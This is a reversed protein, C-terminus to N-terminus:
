GDSGHLAVEDLWLPGNTDKYVTLRIDAADWTSPPIWERGPVSAGFRQCHVWDDQTPCGGLPTRFTLTGVVSPTNLDFNSFYGCDDPDQNPYDIQRSSIRTSMTGTTDTNGDKYGVATGYSEALDTNRTTQYVYFSDHGSQAHLEAFHDGRFADGTVLSMDVGSSNWWNLTFREFSVDTNNTTRTWEDRMHGLQAFDDPGLEPTNLPRCTSMVPPDTTGINDGDGTHEMGILHGFEHAGVQRTDDGAAVDDDLWVLVTTCNARGGTNGGLEERFGDVRGPGGDVVEVWPDGDRDRVFNWRRGGDAFNTAHTVWNSGVPNFDFSTLCADDFGTYFAASPQQPWIATGAAGLGLGAM